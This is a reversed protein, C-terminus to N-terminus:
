QQPVTDNEVPAEDRTVRATMGTADADDRMQEDPAVPPEREPEVANM